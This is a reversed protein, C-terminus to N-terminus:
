LGYQIRDKEPVNRVTPLGKLALPRVVHAARWNERHPPAARAPQLRRELGSAGYPHAAHRGKRGQPGCYVPEMRKWHTGSHAEVM